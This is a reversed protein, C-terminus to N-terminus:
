CRGGAVRPRLAVSQIKTLDDAEVASPFLFAVGDVCRFYITRTM